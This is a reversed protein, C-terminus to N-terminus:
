LHEKSKELEKQYKWWWEQYHKVKPNFDTVSCESPPYKGDIFGQLMYMAERGITSMKGVPWTQCDSSMVPSAEVRSEIKSMLFKLSFKLFWQDASISTVYVPKTESHTLIKLLNIPYVQNLDMPEKIRGNNYYKGGIQGEDSYTKWFGDRKGNNYNGEYKIGKINETWFGVKIGNQYIGKSVLVNNKWIEELGNNSTDIYTREKKIKGHDYIVIKGTYVSPFESILKGEFQLTGDNYYDRVVGQPVGNIYEAIRYYTAENPSNCQKFNRLMFTTWKGHKNGNENLIDPQKIATPFKHSYIPRGEANYYKQEGTSEGNVYNMEVYSGNQSYEYWIGQKYDDKYKGKEQLKGNSDQKIWVGNKLNNEYETSKGMVGNEFWYIWKGDLKGNSYAKVNRKTGSEYNEIYLGDKFGNNYEIINKISGNGFYAKWVGVKKGAAFEGEMILQDEQNQYIWKGEEQNNIFKGNGHLHNYKIDIYQGYEDLENFPIDVNWLNIYKLTEESVRYFNKTTTLWLYGQNDEEISSIYDYNDNSTSISHFLKLKGKEIEYLQASDGEDGSHKAIWLIGNNDVKFNTTGWLNDDIEFPNIIIQSELSIKYIVGDQYMFLLNNKKDEILRRNSAFNTYQRKLQYKFWKGNEFADLGKASLLWIINNNIIIDEIKDYAEYVNPYSHWLEGDFKMINHNFIVWLNDFKDTTIHHISCETFDETKSSFHKWKHGDFSLISSRNIIFWVVGNNSVAIDHVYAVDMDEIKDFFEIEDNLSNYKLLGLGTGIWHISDQIEYSLINREGFFKVWENCRALLINPLLLLLCSIFTIVKLKDIM